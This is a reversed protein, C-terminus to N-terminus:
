RAPFALRHDLGSLVLRPRHDARANPSSTRDVAAHRGLSRGWVGPEVPLRGQSGPPKRCHKRCGHLLRNLSQGAIAFADLFLATFAWVQRIAQHAAGSEAGMETASRTTLLLFFNLTATRIFLESGTSLLSGLHSFDARAPLGIRRLIVAVAALAGFWQAVVSAAAAGAVGMAPVPGWGFILIPDLIINVANLGGAIWMPSRMDQLGRLTGFAAVTALVAPAGLLRVTIYDTAAIAIEGDAGM